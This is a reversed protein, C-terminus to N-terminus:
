GVGNCEDRNTSVSETIFEFDIHKIKGRKHPSIKDNAIKSIDFYSVNYYNACEQVSAFEIIKNDQISKVRKTYHYKNNKYGRITNEKVTVWELNEVKNNQKNSDKHDVVPYFNPNPIFMIAVLKNVRFSKRGSECQLSVRYYGNKDVGYKLEKMNRKISFIKGTESIYYIPKIDKYQILKM